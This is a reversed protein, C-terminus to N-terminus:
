TDRSQGQRAGRTERSYGRPVGYSRALLEEIKVLIWQTGWLARTWDAGKDTSVWVDNYYTGSLGGIVSSGGIIYIAGASDVVTEHGYRGAWPASTTRATWTVGAAV